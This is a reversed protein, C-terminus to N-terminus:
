LALDDQFSEKLVQLFAEVVNGDFQTNSNRKLEEIAERPSFAARYTKPSRMSTYADVVALIRAGLPIAEGKLGYPYGTGDYREHHYRIIEDSSSLFALPRLIESTILPHQRVLEYEDSTLKDPKKLIFEDIKTLGLDYLMSAWRIAKVQEEPVGLKYALAVAYRAIQRLRSYGIDKKVEIIGGLATVAHIFSERISKYRKGISIVTTIIQGFIFCLKLDEETFPKGAEPDTLNLVGIVKDELKLPISMLSGIEHLPNNEKRFRPDKEIDSILVPEGHAAVWGSIRDGLSVKINQIAKDDLGHAAEIFLEQSQEDLLMLSSSKVGLIDTVMRILRRFMDKLELELETKKSEIEPFREKPINVSFKSGKGEESEVQIDGGHAKAIQKAIALGLGKGSSSSTSGSWKSETRYFKEFISDLSKAPIGVGTDIVDIWIQRPEERLVVQVQGGSPTYQIANKILIELLKAIMDEDVFAFPIGSPRNFGLQIGKQDALVGLTSVVEYILRGMDVTKSLITAKQAELQQLYNYDEILSQISKGGQHIMELFERVQQPDKVDDHLLLEAAGIIATLPTNFEHHILSILRTRVQSVEELKANTERLRLNAKALEEIKGGLNEQLRINEIKVKGLELFKKIIEELGQLPIPKKIYHDAGKRLAEIAQKESELDVLMLIPIFRNQNRLQALVELGDQGPIRANLCILDPFEREFAELASFGDSALLVRYGQSQLLTKLSACFSEDHDAILIRETPMKMLRFPTPAYL